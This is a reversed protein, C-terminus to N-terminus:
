GEPQLGLQRMAQRFAAFSDLGAKVAPHARPLGSPSTVTEGERAIIARCRQYQDWHELAGRLVPLAASDLVWETVIDTWMEAAEPSLHAPPEPLEVPRVPPQHGRRTRHPINDPM